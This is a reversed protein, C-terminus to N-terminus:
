TTSSCFMYLVSVETVNHYFMLSAEVGPTPNARFYCTSTPLDTTKDIDCEGGTVYDVHDGVMHKGCKVATVVRNTDPYFSPRGRIPYEDKLGWRLHGWEHVITPGAAVNILRM